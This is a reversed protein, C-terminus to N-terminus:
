AIGTRKEGEAFKLDVRQRSWAENLSPWAIATRKIQRLHSYLEQEKKAKPLNLSEGSSRALGCQREALGNGNPKIQRLRNHLEQEKKAKPL